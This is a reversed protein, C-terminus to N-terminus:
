RYFRRVLVAVVIHSVPLSCFQKPEKIFTFVIKHYWKSERVESAYCGECEMLQRYDDAGSVNTTINQSVSYRYQKPPQAHQTYALVKIEWPLITTLIYLFVVFSKERIGWLDNPVAVSKCISIDVSTVLVYECIM